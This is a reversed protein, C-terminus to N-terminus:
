SLDVIKRPKELKNKLISDPNTFYLSTGSNDEGKDVNNLSKNDM